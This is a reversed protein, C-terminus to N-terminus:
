FVSYVGKGETQPREPRINVSLTKVCVYYRNFSKEPVHITVHNYSRSKLVNGKIICPWIEAIPSFQEKSLTVQKGRSDRNIESIM